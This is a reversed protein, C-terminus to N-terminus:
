ERLAKKVLWAMFPLIVYVVILIATFFVAITVIIYGALQILNDM